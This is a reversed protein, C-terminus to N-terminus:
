AYEDKVRRGDVAAAKKWPWAFRKRPTAAAVVADADSSNRRRAALFFLVTAILLATWSGWAFGFAYSGVQAARGEGEFVNRM